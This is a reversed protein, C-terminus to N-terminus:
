QSFTPTSIVAPRVENAYKLFLTLINSESHSIKTKLNPFIFTMDISFIQFLLIILIDQEHSFSTTPGKRIWGIFLVTYQIDFIYFIFM